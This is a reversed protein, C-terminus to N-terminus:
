ALRHVLCLDLEVRNNQYFLPLPRLHQIIPQLTLVAGQMAGKSNTNTRTLEPCPESFLNVGRHERLHFALNTGNSRTHLLRLQPSGEDINM